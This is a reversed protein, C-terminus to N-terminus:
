AIEKRNYIGCYAELDEDSWNKLVPQPVGPYAEPVLQAVYREELDFVSNM